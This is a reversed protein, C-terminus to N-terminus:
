KEVRYIVNHSAWYLHTGHVRFGRPGFALGAESAVHRFSGGGCKDISWLDFNVGAPTSSFWYIRRDDLAMHGVKRGNGPALVAPQTGAPAEVELRLIAGTVDPFYVAKDDAVLAPAAATTVDFVAVRDV